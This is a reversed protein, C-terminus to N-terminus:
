DEHLARLADLMQCKEDELKKQDIGLFAAIIAARSDYTEYIGNIYNYGTTDDEAILYKSEDMLWDLFEQVHDRKQGVAKLKEHEPYAGSM